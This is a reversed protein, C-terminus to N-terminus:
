PCPHAPLLQQSAPQSAKCPPLLTTQVSFTQVCLLVAGRGGRSNQSGATCGRHQAGCHGGRCESLQQQPHRNRDISGREYDGGQLDTPQDLLGTCIPLLQAPNSNGPVRTLPNSAEARQLIGWLGLGVCVDRCRQRTGCTTSSGTSAPLAMRSSKGAVAVSSRGSHVRHAVASM